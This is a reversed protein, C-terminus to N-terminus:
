RPHREETARGSPEPDEDRLSQPTAAGPAQRALLASWGENDEPVIPRPPNAVLVHAEGSRVAMPLEAAQEFTVAEPMHAAHSRAGTSM